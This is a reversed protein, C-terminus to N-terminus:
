KQNLIQRIDSPRIRGRWIYGNDFMITPTSMFGMKESLKMTDEVPNSCTGPNDPLVSNVMWNEWAKAKDPSCWIQRAKQPAKEHGQIPLPNMFYSITIDDQKMQNFIEQDTLRCYPCDPDSFIAIKRTGKGLKVNIAKDFPLGKFITRLQNRDRETSVDNQTKPDVIKGNLLFYDMNENTYSLPDLEDRSLEYLKIEPLYTVQKVGLKPYAKTIKDLMAKNDTVAFSTSALIGLIAGVVLQYKLKM